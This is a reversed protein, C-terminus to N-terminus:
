ETSVEQNVQAGRPRIRAFAGPAPPLLSRVWLAEEDQGSEELLDAYEYLLDGVRARDAEELADDAVCTAGRALRRRLAELDLGLEPWLRVYVVGGTMGAAMWPGPDGLCVAVGGTMYEFAFGKLNARQASGDLPGRPRAGFVVSGGSLRVAARSDADGQVFLRGGQAGYAFSKGVSGDRWVGDPGPAKLVAVRGGLAGKAVGDQAGGMVVTDLHETHFVALGQGVVGTAHVRVRRGEDGFMARRVLEGALATGFMRVSDEGAAAVGVRVEERVEVAPRPPRHPQAGPPPLPRSVLLPRLDLRDRGRAQVLHEARGVLEQASAYGLAAAHRAVGEGVATLVRALSEAAEEPDRPVFRKFGKARAEEESEVQTTIGVHCTDTQCARCITCGVSVMALTGFAVRNAGLLMCKVVDLATKMGGDCWLEVDGRLGAEVLAGHAELLGVEAPLGVHRASHRRCAGTGGDFGSLTIIDAGAKAIGVAITGIGPVVPVKVIIRAAPSVERLEDILEALDEISYLDHNNSPSILDVGTQANRARAVKESVKRAPLHGGEGPKAGQGIKIELYRSAALLPAAIGFRGSAVQIGRHPGYRGILDAFEGGEGNLCLVGARAAGELYARYATEGQSGFSMSSVVLPYRHDGVGTDARVAASPADAPLALDLLHRLSIPRREELDRVLAEYAEYPRRGQAVDAVAKWVKPYLHYVRAPAPRLGESRVREAEALRRRAEDEFRALTHASGAAFYAPVGLLRVVEEGLGLASLVRAYGRLEHIGMTSMVKEVGECLVRALSAVAGGPDAANGRAAEWWLLYPDVADAGLALLSVVDHLRRVGASRVLIGTRRRAEGELARAVAGLGLLPDIAAKGDALSAGDDLVLLCAGAAVAERAEEGLRALAGSLGEDPGLVMALTRHPLTLDSLLALRSKAAAARLAPGDAALDGVPVPELVLPRELRVAPGPRRREGPLPPRVGLLVDLSFHEGERERDIAPNTVVAVTEHLFDSVQRREEALAALPGDYGLSGIPDVGTDAMLRCIEVDEQDWGFLAPLADPRDSLPWGLPTPAASPPEPLAPRGLGRAALRRCAEARLAADDLVQPPRGPRVLFAVKEGPALPRPEDALAEFPVITRESTVWYADRAPVFWLPRLGLADLSCVVEDGHRAVIAAPGQAVPGLADRGVALVARETEPVQALLTPVPPFVLSMAELLTLGHRGILGLLFRDLDQSDSGGPPLDFGLHLAEERLRAITNIEGNHGLLAFPQVRDFASQTNTSFRLHGMAFATTLRPDGLDLYYAALAAADGRVKYVVTHSSWSVVALGTRALRATLDAAAPVLGSQRPILGLQYLAPAEARGLPGLAGPHVPARRQVLIQYGAQDVLGALRRLAAREDAAPVFVHGVTFDPHYALHPSEGAEALLDSWLARPLDLMLGAGDGEGRTFGARHRVSGLARVVAAIGERGSEGTRSIWAVLACADREDGPGLPGFARTEDTV